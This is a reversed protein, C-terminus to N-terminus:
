PTAIWTSVIDSARPVPMEPHHWRYVTLAADFCYQDPQGLARMETFARVVAPRCCPIAGDDRCGM